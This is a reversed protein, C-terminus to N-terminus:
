IKGYTGDEKFCFQDFLPSTYYGGVSPLSLNKSLNLDSVFKFRNAVATVKCFSVTNCVLWAFTLPLAISTQEVLLVRGSVHTRNPTNLRTYIIKAQVQCISAKSSAINDQSFFM